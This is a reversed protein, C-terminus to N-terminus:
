NRRRFMLLSAAGLGALVISTPEPVATVVFNGDAWTSNAGSALHSYIPNPAFSGPTANFVGTTGRISANAFSGSATDFINIQMFGPVSAPTGVLTLGITALRGPLSADGMANGVLSTQLTMSGATAGAWFELTLAGYSGAAMSTGAADTVLHFSDNGFTVKGQAFSAATTAVLALTILIKKM